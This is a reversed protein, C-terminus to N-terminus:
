AGPAARQDLARRAARDGALQRSPDSRGPTFPRLDAFEIGEGRNRAVQNGSFAQTELPRLLRQVTDGRPYVKLWLPEGAQGEYVLLGFADQARWVVRGVQYTGWHECLLPVELERREGRALRILM